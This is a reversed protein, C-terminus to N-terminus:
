PSQAAMRQKVRQLGELAKEHASPCGLVRQFVAQAEELKGAYMYNEARSLSRPIEAETLDCSGVFPKPAPPETKGEVKAEAGRAQKAPKGPPKPQDPGTPNPPNAVPIAPAVPGATKTSADPNQAPAKSHSGSVMGPIVLAAVLVVAAAAGGVILWKFKAIGGAPEPDARSRGLRDPAEAVATVRTTAPVPAAVPVPTEAKPPCPDERGLAGILRLVSQEDASYSLPTDAGKWLLERWNGDGTERLTVGPLQQVAEAIRSTLLVQGPAVNQLAAAVGGGAPDGISHIAIAAATRGSGASEALGELAWQLRRVTLLASQLNVFGASLTAGQPPEAAGGSASIVDLSLAVPPADGTWPVDAQSNGDQSRLRVSLVIGRPAAAPGDVATGPSGPASVASLTPDPVRDQRLNAM